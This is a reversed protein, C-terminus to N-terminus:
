RRLMAAARGILTVPRPREATCKAIVERISLNVLRPSAWQGPLGMTRISSGHRVESGCRYVQRLRKSVYDFISFGAEAEIVNYTAREVATVAHTVQKLIKFHLLRM